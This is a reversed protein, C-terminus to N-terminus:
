ALKKAYELFVIQLEQETKVDELTNNETNIKRVILEEEDESYSLFLYKSGRVEISDIEYYKKNNIEYVNVEVYEEENM